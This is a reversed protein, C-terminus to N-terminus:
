LDDATIEKGYFTIEKKINMTWFSHIMLMSEIPNINLHTYCNDYFWKLVSFNRECGAKSPTISFLKIALSVLPM